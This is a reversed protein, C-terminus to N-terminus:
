SKLRRGLRARAMSPWGDDAYSQALVVAAAPGAVRKGLETLQCHGGMHDLSWGPELYGRRELRKMSGRIGLVRRLLADRLKHGPARPQAPTINLGGLIYADWERLGNLESDVDADM